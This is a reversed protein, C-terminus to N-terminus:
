KESLRYIDDILSMNEIADHGGTIPHADGKLARIVHELQYFYTSKSRLKLCLDHERNKLRIKNYIQPMIFNYTLLTGKDAEISINAKPMGWVSSEISATTGSPFYLSASMNIDNGSKLFRGDANSVKAVENVISRVIHIPYTGLDMLSGKCLLPNYLNRNMFKPIPLCFSASIHKIDGIEAILNLTRNFLPHFRYHFAEILYKNCSEAVEVMEKAEHANFAIPKECLVHKHSKLAAISWKAHQSAPLGVYILDLDDMTLLESYDGFANPINYINAYKRAKEYSRSAIGLISVERMQEAPRIIADVAINSAGLIGIRIIHEKM